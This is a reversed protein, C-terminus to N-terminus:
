LEAPGRAHLHDPGAGLNRLDDASGREIALQVAAPELILRM